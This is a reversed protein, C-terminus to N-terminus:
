KQTKASVKPQDETPVKLYNFVLIFVFLNDVSLSQELLYGAFYEAGKEPGMIYWVCAGFAVAAAVLGFVLEGRDEIISEGSAVSELAEIEEATSM